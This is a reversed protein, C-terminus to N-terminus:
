EDGLVKRVRQKLQVPLELVPDAPLEDLLERLLGRLREIEDIADAAAHELEIMNRATALKEVIDSM